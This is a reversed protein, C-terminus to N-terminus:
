GELVHDEETGQWSNVITRKSNPFSPFFWAMYRTGLWTDPVLGLEHFLETITLIM